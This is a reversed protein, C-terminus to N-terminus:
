RGPIILTVKGGGKFSYHNTNVPFGVTEKFRSFENEIEADSVFLSELKVCSSSIAKSWDGWEALIKPTSSLLFLHLPPASHPLTLIILSSLLAYLERTSRSTGIAPIIVNM